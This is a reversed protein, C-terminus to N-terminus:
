EYKEEEEIIFGDKEVQESIYNCKERLSNKRNYGKPSNKSLMMEDLDLENQELDQSSNPVIGESQAPDLNLKM